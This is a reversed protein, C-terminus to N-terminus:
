QVKEMKHFRGGASFVIKLGVEDIVDRLMHDYEQTNQAGNAYILCIGKIRLIRKIELFFKKLFIRTDEGTNWQLRNADKHVRCPEGVMYERCIQEIAGQSNVVFFAEDEFPFGSTRIIREVSKYLVPINQRITMLMSLRLYEHGMESEGPSADIGFIDHGLKRCVELFEGPGPGIDLVAGKESVLEPLYDIVYTIKNALRKMRDYKTRVYKDRLLLEFEDEWKKSPAPLLAIDEVRLM